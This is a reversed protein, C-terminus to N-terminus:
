SEKPEKKSGALSYLALLPLLFLVSDCLANSLTIFTIREAVVVVCAPVVATVGLLSAGRRCTHSMNQWGVCRLAKRAFPRWCSECVCVSACVCVCYLVSSCQRCHSKNRWCYFSNVRFKIWIDNKGGKRREEGAWCNDKEIRKEKQKQKRLEQEFTKNVQKNEHPQGKCSLEATQTACIDKMDKRPGSRGNVPVSPEWKRGGGGGVSCPCVACQRWQAAIAAGLQWAFM